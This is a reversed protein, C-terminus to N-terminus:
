RKKEKSHIYDNKLQLVTERLREGAQEIAPMSPLPCLERIRIPEGLLAVRRHYWKKAPVLYMPIISVDALHAMLLAGSKFEIIEDGNHDVTGEPFIVVTKGEKLEECVLHLSDMNFNQKDVPICHMRSFFFRKLKSSYLETTALFHPRRKWFACLLLIPDTLNTHNACVLGGKMKPKKGKGMYVTKPRLWLLIPLAGTIKVFDYLFNSKRKKKKQKPEKKLSM